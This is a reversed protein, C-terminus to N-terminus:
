IARVLRVASFESLFQTEVSAVLGGDPTHLHATTVFYMPRQTNLQEIEILMTVVANTKTLWRRGREHTAVGSRGKEVAFHGGPTVAVCAYGTSAGQSSPFGLIQICLEAGRPVDPGVVLIAHPPEGIVDWSVTTDNIPFAVDIAVANRLEVEPRHRSALAFVPETFEGRQASPAVASPVQGRSRAGSSPRSQYIAQAQQRLDSLVESECTSIMPPQTSYQKCHAHVDGEVRWLDEVCVHIRGQLSSLWEVRKTALILPPDSIPCTLPPMQLPVLARGRITETCEHLSRWAVTPTTEACCERAREDLDAGIWSCTVAQWQDDPRLLEFSFQSASPTITAVSVCLALIERPSM